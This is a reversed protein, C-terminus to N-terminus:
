SIPLPIICAVAPSDVRSARAARAETWGPRRTTGRRGHEIQPVDDVVQVRDARPERAAVGVRRGRERGDGVERALATLGDDRALRLGGLAVRGVGLHGPEGLARGLEAGLAVRELRQRALDLLDLPAEGVDLRADLLRQQVHGVQGVRRRGVAGAGLVVGDHVGPALLRAVLAVGRARVPVEAGREADEVEVARAPQRARAEGHQHARPRPQRARERLEHEVQVGALVAVGLDGRGVEDLVRGHAAGALQGLEGVVRKADRALAVLARVVEVEDGGGLHRQGVQVALLDELAVPQRDRVRGVRGAEAALRARVALVHAPEDALVLEVLDLEHAERRGLRAVGLELLHRAVGRRHELPELQVVADDRQARAVDAEARLLRVVELHPQGTLVGVALDRAARVAAVELRAARLDAVAGLRPGLRAEHM